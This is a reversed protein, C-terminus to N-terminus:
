SVAEAHGNCHQIPRLVGFWVFFSLDDRVMMQASACCKGCSQMHTLRIIREAQAFRRWAFLSSLAAYVFACASRIIRQVCMWNQLFHQAEAWILHNVMRRKIQLKIDDVYWSEIYINNCQFGVHINIEIKCADGTNLKWVVTTRHIENRHDDYWYHNSELNRNYYDLWQHTWCYTTLQPCLPFVSGRKM